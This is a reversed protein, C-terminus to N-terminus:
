NKPGGEFIIWKGLKKSKVIWVNNGPNIVLCVMGLNKGAIAIAYGVFTISQLKPIDKSVLKAIAASGTKKIDEHSAIVWIGFRSELWRRGSQRDYQSKFDYEESGVFPRGRWTFDHSQKDSRGIKILGDINNEWGAVQLAENAGNVDIDSIEYTSIFKVKNNITVEDPYCKLFSSIANKLGCFKVGFFILVPMDNVTPSAIQVLNKDKVNILQINDTKKNIEIMVTIESNDPLYKIHDLSALTKDDYLCVLKSNTNPINPVLKMKHLLKSELPQSLSVKITESNQGQPFQPAVITIAKEKVYEAENYLIVESFNKLLENPEIIERDLFNFIILKTDSGGTVNQILDEFTSSNKTYIYVGGTQKIPLRWRIAFEGECEVTSLFKISLINEWVFAPFKRVITGTEFDIVAINNERVFFLIPTSKDKFEIKACVYNIALLRNIFEIFDKRQVEGTKKIPCNSEKSPTIIKIKTKSSKSSSIDSVLKKWGAVNLPFATRTGDAKSLPGQQPIYHGGGGQGTVLILELVFEGSGLQGSIADSITYQLPTETETLVTIDVYFTRKSKQTLKENINKILNQLSEYYVVEGIPCGAAQAAENLILVAERFDINEVDVLYWMFINWLCPGNDSVKNGFVNFKKGKIEISGDEQANVITLRQQEDIETTKEREKEELVPKSTVDEKEQALVYQESTISKSSYSRNPVASIGNPYVLNIAPSDSSWNIQTGQKGSINYSENQISISGVEQDSQNLTIVIHEYTDINFESDKRKKDIYGDIISCLNNFNNAEGLLEGEPDLVKVGIDKSPMPQPPDIKKKVLKQKEAKTKSSPQLPISTTDKNANTKGKKKLKSIKKKASLSAKSHKAKKMHKCLWILISIGVVVVSIIYMWNQNNDKDNGNPM